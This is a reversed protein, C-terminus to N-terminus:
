FKDHILYIQSTNSCCRCLFEQLDARLVHTVVPHSLNQMGILPLLLVVLLSGAPEEGLITGM